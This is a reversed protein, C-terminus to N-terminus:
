EYPAWRQFSQHMADSDITSNFRLKQVFRRMHPDTRGYPVEAFNFWRVGCFEQEDYTLEQSRDGRVVYWLSVDTHGFTLGVTETSTIMLPPDIEHSATFGLEELLERVVTERPHEGPEVHGGSPLWLQANRHDVLLINEGDVVAFYSVLHKPPTAPKSIRCLDAGSAVWALADSQHEEELVDFPVIESIESHIFQRMLNSSYRKDAAGSRL